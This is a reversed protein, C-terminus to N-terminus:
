PKMGCSTREDAAAFALGHDGPDLFALDDGHRIGVLLVLWAAFCCCPAMFARPLHDEKGVEALGEGVQAGLLGAGEEGGEADDEADAGDDTHEGDAGACALFREAEDLLEADAVDEDIGAGGGALRFHLLAAARGGARVVAVDADEVGVDLIELSEGGPPRKCGARTSGLGERSM